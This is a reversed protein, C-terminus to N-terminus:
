RLFQLICNPSPPWTSPRLGVRERNIQAVDLSVLVATRAYPSSVITMMTKDSAPVVITHTRLTNRLLFRKPGCVSTTCERGQANHLETIMSLVRKLEEDARMYRAAWHRDALLCPVLFRSWAGM